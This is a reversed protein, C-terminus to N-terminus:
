SSESRGLGFLRVQTLTAILILAAVMFAGASARGYDQSGFALDYLYWLPPRTGVANGSGGGTTALINYFEDFAQFAAIINVFLVFITTNRLLPWTIHRFTVWGGEAGDIRAAEYLDRPIEQLGALFIIMNFGLQLWLRVSVLVIWPSDFIWSHTQGGLSLLLMNAVGYRVGSFLGMRWVLSAVVYSVATPLFFASRFFSQGRRVSNVLLALGLGLAITTPVIFLAFISVTRLTDLFAPDTLMSVYNSLGVFDQMSVTNRADHLSLLFGWVIPLFTFVLLGLVLPGVFGWFALTAEPHRRRKPPPLSTPDTTTM